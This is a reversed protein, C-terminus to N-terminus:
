KKWLTPSFLLLITFIELRGILMVMTMVWKGVIPFSAYTGAPGFQGVSIGVNGMASIATGLSEEFNVGCACFVLTTVGIIFMYLLMFAMTNNISQQGVPKGNLKVPIVANPHIRRKFETVANKIIIVLRVWKIGGATSGACGGTLMLFLILVWLVPHWLV